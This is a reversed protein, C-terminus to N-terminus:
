HPACMIKKLVMQQISCASNRILFELYFKLRYAFQFFIFFINIFSYFQKSFLILIYSSWRKNEVGKFHAQCICM